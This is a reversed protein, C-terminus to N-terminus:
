QRGARKSVHARQKQGRRRRGERGVGAIAQAALPKDNISPMAETRWFGRRSAAVENGADIISTM